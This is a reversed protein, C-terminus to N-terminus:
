VLSFYKVAAYLVYLAAIWAFLYVLVKNTQRKKQQGGTRNQMGPRHVKNYHEHMYDRDMLGM